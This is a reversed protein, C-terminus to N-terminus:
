RVVECSVTDAVDAGLITLAGTAADVECGGGSAAYTYTVNELVPAVTPDVLAPADAGYTAANGNAYGAWTLRLLHCRRSHCSVGSVVPFVGSSSATVTAVCEGGAVSLFFVAMGLVTIRPPSGWWREQWLIGMM